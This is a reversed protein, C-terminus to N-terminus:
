SPAHFEQDFCFNDMALFKDDDDGILDCIPSLNCLFDDFEEDTYNSSGVLVVAHDTSGTPFSTGGGGGMSSNRQTMRKFFEEGNVDCNLQKAEKVVRTNWFNKIDNDTRGPLEKAIRSWRNGLQRHLTLITLIEEDTFNGRRIDPSLYNVWRLRCSNGSRKIGIRELKHSISDWLHPGDKNVFYTLKYDEESTWAVKGRVENQEM